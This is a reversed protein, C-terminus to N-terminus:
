ICCGEEEEESQGEEQLEERGNTYLATNAPPRHIKEWERLMSGEESIVVRCPVVKKKTVVM